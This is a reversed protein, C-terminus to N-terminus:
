SHTIASSELWLILSYLLLWSLMKHLQKINPYIKGRLRFLPNDSKDLCVWFVSPKIITAGLHAIKMPLIICMSTTMQLILHWGCCYDMQRITDVPIHTRQLHGTKDVVQVRVASGKVQSTPDWPIPPDWMGEAPNFKRLCNRFLWRLTTSNMIRSWSDSGGPSAKWLIQHAQSM